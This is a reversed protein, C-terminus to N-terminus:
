YDFRQASSFKGSVVVLVRDIATATRITDQLKGLFTSKLAHKKVKTVWSLDKVIAEMDIREATPEGHARIKEIRERTDLNVCTLYVDTDAQLSIGRLMVFDSVFVLFLFFTWGM